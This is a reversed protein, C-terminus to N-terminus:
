KAIPNGVAKPPGVIWKPAYAVTIFGLIAVVTCWTFMFMFIDSGYAGYGYYFPAVLSPLAAVIGYLRRRGLSTNKAKLSKGWKGLAMLYLALGLVAIAM